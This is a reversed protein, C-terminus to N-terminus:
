WARSRTTATSSATPTSATSCHPSISTRRRPRQTTAVKTLTAIGETTAVTCVLTELPKGDVQLGGREPDYQARRGELGTRRAAGSIDVTWLKKDSEPALNNDREDVLFTTASLATIESHAVNTSKPDQL